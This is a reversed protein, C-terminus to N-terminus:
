AMRDHRASIDVQSRTRAIETTVSERKGLNAPGSDAIALPYDTVVGLFFQDLNTFTASILSQVCHVRRGAFSQCNGGKYLQGEGHYSENGKARENRARGQRLFSGSLPFGRAINQAVHRLQLFRDVYRPHRGIKFEDAGFAISGHLRGNAGRKGGCIGCPRV